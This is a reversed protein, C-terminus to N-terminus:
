SNKRAVSILLAFCTSLIGTLLLISDLPVDYPWFTKTAGYFMLILFLWASLRVAILRLSITRLRAKLEHDNLTIFRDISGGGSQILDPNEYAKRKLLQFREDVVAKLKSIMYHQNDLVLIVIALAFTAIVVLGLNLIIDPKEEKIALLWVGFLSPVIAIKNAISGLLENAKNASDVFFEHVENQFKTFSFGRIYLEYTAFYKNLLENWNEVLFFLDSSSEKRFALIEWVSVRFTSLKEAKHAKGEELNIIERLTDLEVQDLSLLKNTISLEIYVPEMSKSEENSVVFVAKSTMSDSRQDVFHCTKKILLILECFHEIKLVEEPICAAEGRLYDLNAIYFQEPLIGQNLSKCRRIFDFLDSYGCPRYFSIEISDIVESVLGNLEAEKSQDELTLGGKVIQLNYKSYDAARWLSVIARAMDLSLTINSVYVTGSEDFEANDLMRFLAVAHTLASM